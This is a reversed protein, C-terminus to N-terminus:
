ALAEAWVRVSKFAEGDGDAVALLKGEFTLTFRGTHTTPPRKGQVIKRASQEDVELREFPLAELDSFGVASPLDDLNVTQALSFRGARTRLLGGLYAPVGLAEGLDRALSRIYTGSGVHAHLLVTFFDGLPAPLAAEGEPPLHLAGLASLQAFDRPAAALSPASGLLSLAHIRVSRPPLEIERGARAAAYARQGDVSIASYQPPRQQIDGLFQPLVACVDAETLDHTAAHSIPGEADLTPTAAGFCIWALYEKEDHEMFQVTKTSSDSALVLVGGALPDLTGTHGVRRTQLLRRARAVADHSTFHLSKNVAFVPM